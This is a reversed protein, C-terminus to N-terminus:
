ISDTTDVTVPTVFLKGAGVKVLRKRDVFIDVRISAVALSMWLM